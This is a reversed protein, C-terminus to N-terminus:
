RLSEGSKTLNNSPEHNLQLAVALEHRPDFVEVAWCNEIWAWRWDLGQQLHCQNTMFDYCKTIDANPGLNIM